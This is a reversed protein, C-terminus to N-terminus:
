SYSANPDSWRTVPEFDALVVRTAADEAV